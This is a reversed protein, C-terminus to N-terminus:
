SVEYRWGFPDDARNYQIDMIANKLTEAYSQVQASLEYVKGKYGFAAVPNIVAATGSGFIELLTGAEWAQLLEHVTVPRVEAEMGKYAALELISKRTVGDLIRDNAPTTVLKNGFRFFINMTGAEELYQHTSADTWLVQQFGEEIALQTPYLQGAYNGAAKAFGIGGDAARSYQEAIKIRNPKAYYAQVPSCIVIFKYANAATALITPQTAIMFPRIYLSNGKGKKVWERDLHLLARLGEFFVTEPLEPMALRKASVNLRKLNEEPRFLWVRDEEDKYAKMGEFIAQGYHFVKASPELQIPQYPLIRPFDWSGQEYDCILMHDTFVTGFSLNEFNVEHLRSTKAREVDIAVIENKM